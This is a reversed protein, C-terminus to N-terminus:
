ESDFDQLKIVSALVDATAQYGDVKLTDGNKIVSEQVSPAGKAFTIHKIGLRSLVAPSAIKVFFGVTASLAQTKDGGSVDLDSESYDVSVNPSYQNRFSELLGKQLRM